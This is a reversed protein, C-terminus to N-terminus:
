ACQVTLKILILTEMKDQLLDVCKAHVLQFLLDTQLHIDINCMAILLSPGPNLTAFVQQGKTLNFKPTLWM